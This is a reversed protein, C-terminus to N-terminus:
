LGAPNTWIAQRFVWVVHHIKVMNSTNLQAINIIDGSFTVNRAEQFLNFLTVDDARITMSMAREHPRGTLVSWPFAQRLLYDTIHYFVLM